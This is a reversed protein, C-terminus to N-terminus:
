VNNNHFKAGVLEATIRPMQDQGFDSWLALLFNAAGANQANTSASKARGESHVESGGADAPEPDHIKIDHLYRIKLALDKMARGVHTARFSLRGGVRDVPEIGLYFNDGVFGTEGAAISEFNDTGKIDHHVARIVKWSTVKGVIGAHEEFLGINVARNEPEFPLGTHKRRM